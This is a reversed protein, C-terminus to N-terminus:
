ISAKEDGYKAFAGLRPIARRATGRVSEYLGKSTMPTYESVTFPIKNTELFDKVQKADKPTEVKFISINNKKEM